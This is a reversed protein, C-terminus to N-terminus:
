KSTAVEIERPAGIASGGIKVGKAILSFANVTMFEPTLM